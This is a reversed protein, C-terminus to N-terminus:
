NEAVENLNIGYGALENYLDPGRQPYKSVFQQALISRIGPDVQARIGEITLDYAEQESEATRLLVSHSVMPILDKPDSSLAVDLDEQTPNPPVVKKEIVVDRLESRAIAKAERRFEPIDGAVDILSARDVPFDNASIKTLLSQIAEGALQPEQKMKEVVFGGYAEGNPVRATDQRAILALKLSREWKNSDNTALLATEGASLKGSTEIEQVISTLQSSVQEAPAASPSVSAITRAEQQKPEVVVEGKSENLLPSAQKGSSVIVGAVAVSISLIVLQFKTM